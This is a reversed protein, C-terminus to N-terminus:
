KRLNKSIGIFFNFIYWIILSIMAFSLIRISDDIFVVKFIGIPYWSEYTGLLIIKPLFFWFISIHQNDPDAKIKKLFINFKTNM